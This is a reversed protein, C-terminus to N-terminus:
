CLYCPAFDNKYPAFDTRYSDLDSIFPTFDSRYSAFDSKKISRLWKHTFRPWKEHPAILNKPPYSTVQLLRVLPAPTVSYKKLSTDLENKYRIFAAVIKTDIRLIQKMINVCNKLTLSHRQKQTVTHRLTFSRRRFLCGSWQFKFWAKFTAIKAFSNLYM